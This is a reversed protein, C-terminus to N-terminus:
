EKSRSMPSELVAMIPCSASKVLSSESMLVSELRVLVQSRAVSIHIMRLQETANSTDESAGDESARIIDRSRGLIYLAGCRTYEEHLENGM